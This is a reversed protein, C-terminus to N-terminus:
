DDSFWDRVESAAVVTVGAVVAAALYAVALSPNKVARDLLLNATELALEVTQNNM